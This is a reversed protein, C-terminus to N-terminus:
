VSILEKECFNDVKVMTSNVMEVLVSIVNRVLTFYDLANVIHLANVGSQPYSLLEIIRLPVHIAWICLTQTFKAQVFISKLRKDSVIILTRLTPRHALHAMKRKFILCKEKRQRKTLPNVNKFLAWFCNLINNSMDITRVLITGVSLFAFRKVTIYCSRSGNMSSSSTSGPQKNVFNRKDKINCSSTSVVFVSLHRKIKSSFSSCPVWCVVLM